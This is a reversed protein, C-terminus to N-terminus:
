KSEIVHDDELVISSDKKVKGMSNLKTITPIVISSKNPFVESEMLKKMM